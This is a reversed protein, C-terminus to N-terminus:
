FPINEDEVAAPAAAMAPTTDQRRQWSQKRNFLTQELSRLSETSLSRWDSTGFIGSSVHAVYADPFRNDLVWLIRKRAANQPYFYNMVADLDDPNALLRFLYVVRDTEANDLNNASKDHGLAVTHCAHRLDDAGPGRHDQAARALAADWVRQYLATIEKSGWAEARQGAFRGNEMRWDHARSALAWAPFYYFQRQRPTM